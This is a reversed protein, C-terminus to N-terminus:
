LIYMVFSETIHFRCTVLVQLDLLTKVEEFRKMSLLEVDLLNRRLYFTIAGLASVALEYNSDATLGLPDGVASYVIVHFTCYQGM